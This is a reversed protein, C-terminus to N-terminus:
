TASAGRVTLGATGYVCKCDARFDTGGGGSDASVLRGWTFRVEALWSTQGSVCRIRPRSCLRNHKLFHIPVYLDIGSELRHLFWSPNSVFRVQGQIDGRGVGEIQGKRVMHMAEYGKITRGATKYSFFRLGEASQISNAFELVLAILM